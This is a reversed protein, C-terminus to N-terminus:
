RGRHINGFGDRFNLPTDYNLTIAEEIQLSALLAPRPVYRTGRVAEAVAQGFSAPEGSKQTNRGCFLQTILSSEIGYSDRRVFDVEDNMARVSRCDRRIDLGVPSDVISIGSM